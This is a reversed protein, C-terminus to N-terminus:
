RTVQLFTGYITNMAAPENEPNLGWGEVHPLHDYVILLRGPEVEVMGTYCTSRPKGHSKESNGAAIGKAVKTPTSWSEGGDESFRVAIDDPRGTACALVGSKLEMVAPEVGRFGISVPKTWTKGDDDSWAKCMLNNSGRRIVAFLRGDGLRIMRPECPGEYSKEAASDLVGSATEDGAITSLYNWNKGSPDSSAVITRYYKDGELKGYMTTLWGGQRAALITGSFVLQATEKIKGVGLSKRNDSQPQRQAPKPLHITVDRSYLSTNGGHSLRVSVTELNRYDDGAGPLPYGAVILMSGDPLAPDRTYAAERYIMGGTNRMGWTRGGDKSVVYGWFNAEVELDDADLSFDCILEGTSLRQLSPFFGYKRTEHIKVTELVEVKLAAFSEPTAARLLGLGILCKAAITMSKLARRRSVATTAQNPSVLQPALSSTNM